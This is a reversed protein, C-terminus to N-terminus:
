RRGGRLPADRLQQMRAYRMQALRSQIDSRLDLASEAFERNAVSRYDYNIAGHKMAGTQDFEGLHDVASRVVYSPRKVADIDDYMFRPQGTMADIYQRDNDAYGTYRPDYINQLEEGTVASDTYTEGVFERANHDTYMVEGPAVSRATQPQLQQEYSIGINASVPDLVESRYYMGPQVIQVAKNQNYGIHAADGQSACKNVQVGYRDFADPNYGCATNVYNNGVDTEQRAVADYYPYKPSQALTNADSAYPASRPSLAGEPETHVDIYNERVPRAQTEFARVCPESLRSVPALGARDVLARSAPANPVDACSWSCPNKIEPNTFAPDTTPVACTARFPDRYGGTVINDIYDGNVYSADVAGLPAVSQERAFKAQARTEASRTEYAALAERGGADLYSGYAAPAAKSTQTYPRGPEASYSFGERVVPPYEAAGCTPQSDTACGVYGSLYLDQYRPRNVQIPFRNYEDKRWYAQDYAPPTIVPAVLTRPHVKNGVLAQNLSVFESDGDVTVPPTNAWVRPRDTDGCSSIRPGAPAGLSYDRQTQLRQTNPPTALSAPVAPPLPHYMERVPRNILYASFIIIAVSAAFFARRCAVALVVSVVFLTALVIRTQQDM